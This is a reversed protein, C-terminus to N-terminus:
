LRPHGGDQSLTAIPEVKIRVLAILRGMNMNFSAIAFRLELKFGNAQCIIVSKGRMFDRLYKCQHFRM